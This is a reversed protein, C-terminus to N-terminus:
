SSRSEKKLDPNGDNDIELWKGKLPVSGMGTVLSSLDFGHLSGNRQIKTAIRLCADGGRKM